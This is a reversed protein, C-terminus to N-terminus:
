RRGFGVVFTISGSGTVDIQYRLYRNVTGTVSSVQNTVAAVTTFTILDVWSSNDTSHQVKIVAGSFGSFASVQLYGGGGNASSAANDVSAGDTDATVAALAHLSIIRDGYTKGTSNLTFTSAGGIPSTPAYSTQIGQVGYGSNGLTDGQPFYMTQKVANILANMVEEQSGSGESIFGNATYTVAKIGGIVDHWTAGFTTTDVAEGNLTIAFSTLYSTVDFNNMYVKANTGHLFSM